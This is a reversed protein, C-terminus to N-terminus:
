LVVIVDDPYGVYSLLTKMKQVFYDPGSIVAMTGIKFEPLAEQIQNNKVLDHGFLDNILLVSVELKPHYKFYSKELEKFLFFDEQDENAWIINATEISSERNGLLERTLQILPVIDTPGAAVLTLDTIPSYSGRYNLQKAGPKVAVEDGIALSDIFRHFADEGADYVQARRGRAATVVDFAGRRGAPSLPALEGQCVAGRGDLGCLAVGQGLALPLVEQPGQLRFRHRIFPGEGLRQREALTAVSWEATPLEEAPPQTLESWRAGALDGLRAAKGALVQCQYKLEPALAGFPALIIEFLSGLFSSTPGAVARAGAALRAAAALLLLGLLAAAGALLATPTRPPLVSQDLRLGPEVLRAGAALGLQAGTALLRPFKSELKNWAAKKPLPSPTFIKMHPQQLQLRRNASIQGSGGHKPVVLHNGIHPNFAIAGNILALFFVRRMM